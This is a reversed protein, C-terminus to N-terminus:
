VVSFEEHNIKIRRITELNIVRYEHKQVDFVSILNKSEFDYKAGEGSLYRKVGFRCNMKRLEGTTRKIFHVSFFKGKGEKRFKYLAAIAQANTIKM